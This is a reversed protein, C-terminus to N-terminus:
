LKIASGAEANEIAQLDHHGLFVRWGDITDDGGVNQAEEVQLYSKRRHRLEPGDCFASWAQGPVGLSVSKWRGPGGHPNGPWTRWLLGISGPRAGGMATVFDPM